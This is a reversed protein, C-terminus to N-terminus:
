GFKSIFRELTQSFQDFFSAGEAGFEGALYLGIRRARQRSPECAREYSTPGTALVDSIRRQARLPVASWLLQVLRTDTEDLTRRADAPGFAALVSNWVVRSQKEYLGALLVSRPQALALALGVAYRLGPSDSGLEGSVLAVPPSSALASGYAPGVPVLTGRATTRSAGARAYLPTTWGLLRLAEGYVRSVAGAAAPSVREDMTLGHAGLDRALAPQAAEWVLACVEDLGHGDLRVVSALFAADEVQFRLSPAALPADGLGGLVSDVASALADDGLGVAADRLARLPSPDGPARAVARHRLELWAEAGDGRDAWIPDLLADAEASGARSARILLAEAAEREGHALAERARAVCEAASAGAPPDTAAVVPGVPLTHRSVDIDPVVEAEGHPPRQGAQQLATEIEAYADSGRPAM